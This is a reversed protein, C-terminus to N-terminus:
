GLCRIMCKFRDVEKYSKLYGSYIFHGNKQISVWLGVSSRDICVTTTTGNERSIAFFDFLKDTGERRMTRTDYTFHQDAYSILKNTFTKGFKMQNEERIQPLLRKYSKDSNSILFGRVRYSNCLTLPDEYFSPKM